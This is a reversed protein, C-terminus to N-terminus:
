KCKSLSSSSAYYYGPDTVEIALTVPPVESAPLKRRRTVKIGNARLWYLKSIADEGTKCAYIIFEYAPRARNENKHTRVIHYKEIIPIINM